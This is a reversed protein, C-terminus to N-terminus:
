DDAAEELENGWADWGPRPPGRRNLEIKPINPYYAEIMELVAEPKDSHAGRAAEIVSSWQTGHTPAPIKAKTGVLLHEHRNLNWHGTGNKNKVWAFNSVYRFGWEKLVEIGRDLLPVTVWLFLISDDASISPVDLAKIEDVTQTPYHNDAARDMGTKRSYPEFRWAPDALIVGYRKDPLAKQKAALERERQDRRDGKSAQTLQRDAAKIIEEGLTEVQEEFVKESVAAAERARKALNKDIGAEALSPPGDNPPTKRVGGKAPRGQGASGKAKGVTKAQAKMIQGLRREARRKIKAAMSLLRSDKAQRAYAKMAEAEARVKTIEDVTTAANLARVAADYRILKM